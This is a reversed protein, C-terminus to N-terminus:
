TPNANNEKIAELVKWYVDPMNREAILEDLTRSCGWENEIQAECVEIYEKIELLLELTM